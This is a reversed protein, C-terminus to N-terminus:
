QRSSQLRGCFSSGFIATLLEGENQLLAVFLEIVTTALTQVTSTGVVSCQSFNAVGTVLSLKQPVGSLKGEAGAIFRPM